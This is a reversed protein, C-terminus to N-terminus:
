IYLIAQSYQYITAQLMNQLQIKKSFFLVSAFDKMDSNKNVNNHCNNDPLCSQDNCFM